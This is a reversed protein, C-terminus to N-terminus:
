PRSRRAPREQLSLRRTPGALAAARQRFQLATGGLEPHDWPLVAARRRATDAGSAGRFLPRARGLPRNGRREHARRLTERRAEPRGSPDRHGASPPWLAPRIRAGHRGGSRFLTTYPFLTSRPPLLIM